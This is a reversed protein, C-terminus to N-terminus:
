ICMLTGIIAENLCLIHKPFIIQSIIQTSLWAGEYSSPPKLHPQKPYFKIERNKKHNQLHCTVYSNDM